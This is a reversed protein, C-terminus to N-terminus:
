KELLDERDLFRVLTERMAPPNKVLQSVLSARSPILIAMEFGKGLVLKRSLNIIM